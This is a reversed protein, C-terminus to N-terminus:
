TIMCGSGLALMPLRALDDDHTEASPAASMRGEAKPHPLHSPIEQKELVM